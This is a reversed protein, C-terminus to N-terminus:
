ALPPRRRARLQKMRERVAWPVLFKIRQTLPLGALFPAWRRNFPQDWWGDGYPDFTPAATRRFFATTRVVEVLAFMPDQRLFQFLHNINRIQIDDLVLLADPALAPYLHYYELDPFPYGHAGDILALDLPAPFRYAPLTRQAPGVVFEVTEARLVVSTRVRALSGSPGDDCTFVFHRASLHSLLLTSKGTGTEASVRVPHAGGHHALRALVRPHLGGHRHWDRPLTVIERLAEDVDGQM